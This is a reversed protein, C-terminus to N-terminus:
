AARRVDLERELLGLCEAHAAIRSAEARDPVGRRECADAYAAAGISVVVQTLIARALEVHLVRLHLLVRASDVLATLANREAGDLLCPGHYYRSHALDYLHGAVLALAETDREGARFRQMTDTLYGSTGLYVRVYHRAHLAVQTVARALIERGADGEPYRALAADLDDRSFM